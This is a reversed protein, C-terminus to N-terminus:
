TAGTVARQLAEALDPGRVEALPITAVPDKLIDPLSSTVPGAPDAGYDTEHVPKGHLLHSGGEVSVGLAPAASAIVCAQGVESAVADLETAVHGRLGSDFRKFVRFRPGGVEAVATRVVHRVRGSAVAASELRSRTDAVTVGIWGAPLASDWPQVLAPVGVSRCEGALAVCGTFDDSLALLVPGPGGSPQSTM